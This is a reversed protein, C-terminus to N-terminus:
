CPSTVMPGFPDSQNFNLTVKQITNSVDTEGYGVVRIYNRTLGHLKYKDSQITSNEWLVVEPKQNYNSRFEKYGQKSLRILNSSRYSKTQHSVNDPLHYATTGPRSSFKFVHMDSFKSYKSIAMTKEFDSHTEDPFGVIVDTTISSTPINTKILDITKIFDDSTYRRRMKNLVQDSGSQLPVHFHQCLRENEWLSLLESTIEQAQLSSVRIRPISTKNIVHKLMTILNNNPIDFGYSGLQTGTLIVEKFGGATLTNIKNILVETPISKERGRVKPVICYSCVQNCGEQIKIMARNKIVSENENFYLISENTIKDPVNAKLLQSVKEVILSKSKNDLVIDIEPINELEPKAREAYCGTVVVIAKPNQRKAARASQRGKRDAIHTVTCTNLVFVDCKNIEDTLQYGANKFESSLVLTDAQNLKCGHTEFAVNLNSNNTPIM